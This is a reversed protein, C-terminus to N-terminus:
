LWIVADSERATINAAVIGDRGITVRHDTFDVTGEIRGEIFLSECGSIEGKIVVSGGITSQEVSVGATKLTLNSPFQSKQSDSPQLM